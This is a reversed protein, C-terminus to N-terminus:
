NRGGGLFGENVGLGHPRFIDLKRSYQDVVYIRGDEDLALGAMLMYQAPAGGGGRSGVSMLLQGQDNFIQFNGFATDSVYVNSDADVAIGKPRSFQGTQRGISGIKGVFSGDPSFIQVRFNGGDVVYINGNDAVTIERPLNLQGDQNGRSAINMLHEGTMGDFVVIHHRTSDVGGTDSVYIRSGDKTVSVDSPRDFMEHNGLPYKFVGDRDYVNVIRLTGDMVYLNGAADVDLGLPKSLLGPQKTGIEFFKHEVADFVMVTRRQTDSLFIRGQHVAVSFPKGMGTGSQLEGTVMRRFAADSEEVVVDASSFITREYHFRPQEPPSPFVLGPAVQVSEYETVCGVLAVAFLIATMVSRLM